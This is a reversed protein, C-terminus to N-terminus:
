LLQLVREANKYCIADIEFPKFGAKEMANVLLPVDQCGKIELDGDMGDFDAGLAPLDIGGKDIMHRLHLLMSDITSKHDPSLFVGYFNLGAIGQREGLMHIMEDTLNRPHDCLARCCSHSAVFPRKTHDFVDYFGQDSLHSVDILMKLREMEALVELGFPKLGTDALHSMTNPFGLCNEYNWTLTILRIGHSYLEYLRTMRGKLIGGEEVTLFCSTKGAEKNALYSDYSDAFAALNQDALSNKLLDIMGLADHYHEDNITEDKLNLFCAFFQALAGARSLRNLDIHGSNEMLTENQTHNRDKYYLRSLTDCHFDITSM